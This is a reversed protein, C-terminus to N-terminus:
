VENNKEERMASILQEFMEKLDYTPNWGLSKLKSIDLNMCLKPAYGYNTDNRADDEILVKIRGNTCKEAVLEAMKRISCYTSENAANYAQGCTGQIMVTLVASVADQTYLYSRRTEGKTHLVIDKNEIACRAFEAFVRGDSYDVGPGFTQTLRVINVPVNREEMFSVCLNECLRKSEPYCSRVSTTDLNTGNTESIKDDTSPAGYVEMTSLYVYKEVGKESALMLTNYTGLFATQITEVPKSIFAKSSTENAAHIIYDISADIIMPNRIDCTIFRIREWSDPFVKEAKKLNRTTAIIEIPRDLSDSIELLTKVINQGILGTAGTVLVTKGSLTTADFM